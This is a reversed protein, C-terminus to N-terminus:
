VSRVLVLVAFECAPLPPPMVYVGDDGACVPPLPVKVIVPDVKLRLVAAPSAPPPTSKNIKANADGPPIPEPVAEIPVDVKEFLWARPVHLPPPRPMSDSGVM